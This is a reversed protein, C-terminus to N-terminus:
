YKIHKACVPFSKFTNGNRSDLRVGVEDSYFSRRFGDWKVEFIWDPHSFGDFPLVRAGAPNQQGRIQQGRAIRFPTLCSPNREPLQNLASCLESTSLCAAFSV